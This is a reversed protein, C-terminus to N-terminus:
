KSKERRCSGQVRLVNNRETNKLRQHATTTGERSTSGTRDEERERETRKRRLEDRKRGKNKGPFPMYELSKRL